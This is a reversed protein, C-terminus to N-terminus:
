YKGKGSRGFKRRHAKRACSHIKNVDCMESLEKYLFWHMQFYYYFIFQVSPYLVLLIEGRSEVEWDAVRLSKFQKKNKQHDREHNIHNTIAITRLTVVELSKSIEEAKWSKNSIRKTTVDYCKINFKLEISYGALQM